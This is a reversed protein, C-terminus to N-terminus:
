SPVYYDWQIWMWPLGLACTVAPFMFERLRVTKFVVLESVFLFVVGVFTWMALIYLERSKHLHYAAYFRILGTYINKIGYVHALLPSQQAAGRPGSFQTQAAPPSIYCVVSHIM